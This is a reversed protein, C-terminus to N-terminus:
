WISPKRCWNKTALRPTAYVAFRRSDARHLCDGGAVGCSGLGVRRLGPSPQERRQQQHRDARCAHVDYRHHQRRHLGFEADAARRHESGYVSSITPKPRPQTIIPLSASRKPMTGTSSAPATLRPMPKTPAPNTPLMVAYAITCPMKMPRNPLLVVKTGSIASVEIHNTLPAADRNRHAGAAVIQGTRDPRRHHLMEDVADAPSGVQTTSPM